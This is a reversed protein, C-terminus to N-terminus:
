NMDEFTYKNLVNINTNQTVNKNQYSTNGQTGNRKSILACENYGHSSVFQHGESGETGEKMIKLETKLRLVHETTNKIYM